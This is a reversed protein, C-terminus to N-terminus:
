RIDKRLRFVITTDPLLDPGGVIQYGMKQWFAIAPENNVQVGAQISTVSGDRRIEAEVAETVAKGIGKRRHSRSLMLLSLFAISPDGEFGNPVFDVIGVMEQGVFIGCYVGGHEVSLKMDDLVMQRSAYPVPGLALFDECQRYVEFVTDIDKEEIRGVTFCSGKIKM